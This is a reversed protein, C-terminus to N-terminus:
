TTRDIGNLSNELEVLPMHRLGNVTKLFESNGNYRITFEEDQILYELVEKVIRHTDYGGCNKKLREESIIEYSNKDNYKNTKYFYERNDFSFGIMTIDKIGLRYCLHLAPILSNRFMFLKSKKWNRFNRHKSWYKHLAHFGKDKATSLRHNRVLRVHLVTTDNSKIARKKLIEDITLLDSWILVDTEFAYISRNLGISLYGGTKMKEFLEQPLENLSPANGMIVARMPNRNRQKEIWCPFQDNEDQLFHGKSFLRLIPHLRYLNYSTKIGVHERNRVFLRKRLNSLFKIIKSKRKNKSSTIKKMSYNKQKHKILGLQPKIVQEIVAQSAKGNELSCFKLKFEQQKEVYRKISVDIGNIVKILEDMTEVVPGPAEKKLDFYMGRIGQSYLEIDYAFFVIPKQLNAYDFMVSSYDTILIDSILMLEQIDYKPASFDFAFYPKIKSIDLQSSILHHLRLLLIHTEGFEKQFRELDLMLKFNRDVRNGKLDRWTPAYLMVKKDYPIELREKIVAIDTETNKNFFIDNRPYGIELVPGDYVYVRRFIDTTYKNPSILYNWRGNKTYSAKSIQPRKHLIDTGMLKLPTGHQTNIYTQKNRTPLKQGYEGNHVLIRACTFYYYYSISFRKIKKIGTVAELSTDQLSWVCKVPLNQKIIEECIYKPNGSYSLGRHSEFLITKRSVPLLRFFHYTLKKYNKLIYKVFSILVSVIQWVFITKLIKRQARLYRWGISKKIKKLEINKEKVAKQLNKLTLVQQEIQEEHKRLLQNKNEAASKLQLLESNSINLQKKIESLMNESANLENLRKKQLDKENSLDTNLKKIKISNDHKKQTFYQSKELLNIIFNATRFSPQINIEGAKFLSSIQEDGDIMELEAKAAVYRLSQLCYHFCHANQLYFLFDGKYQVPFVGLGPLGIYIRGTPKILQKLKQLFYVPDKIHELVHNIILLDAKEFKKLVQLDGEYLEIGQLIGYELFEKGPDCGKVKHGAQKFASLIGGAGAGIEYVISNPRIYAGVYRLIELGVNQQKIFFVDSAQKEGTYISRYENKYFLNLTEDTYYPDSRLLGCNNCLVTQLPIGYREIQAVVLDDNEVVFVISLKLKTYVM